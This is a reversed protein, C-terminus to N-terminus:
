FEFELTKKTRNLKRFHRNEKLKEEIEDFTKGESRLRIISDLLKRFEQYHEYIFEGTKQSEDAERGLERIREQQAGVIKEIKTKKEKAAKQERAEIGSELTIADLGGSFSPFTKEVGEKMSLMRVPYIRQKLLTCNIGESLLGRIAASLKGAEGDTIKEATRGLGARALVEDAYKGGFGLETALMKGLPKASETLLAKLQPANMELPNRQGPPFLYEERAAVKRTSFEQRGLANIIILKGGDRRCLVINGPRFLELIMCLEGERASDAEILIIREFGYQRISKIRTNTLHKRLFTCFAMPKEPAEYKLTTINLVDPVKVRLTKKERGKFLRFFFLSNDLQYIRDFKAGELARMEKALYFIDLSAMEYAM